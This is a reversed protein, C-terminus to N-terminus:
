SRRRCRVGLPGCQTGAPRPSGALRLARPRGRPATAPDLRVGRGLEEVRVGCEVGARPSDNMSGVAGGGRWMGSGLRPRNVVAGQPLGVSVGRGVSVGVPAAQPRRHRFPGSRYPRRCYGNAPNAVSREGNLAPPGPEPRRRAVGRVTRPDMGVPWDPWRRRGRLIGPGAAPRRSSIRASGLATALGNKRSIGDHASSGTPRARSGRWRSRTM